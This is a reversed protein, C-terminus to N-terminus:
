THPINLYSCMREVGKHGAKSMAVMVNDYQKLSYESKRALVVGCLALVTTCIFTFTDVLRM